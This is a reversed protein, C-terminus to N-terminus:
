VNFTSGGIFERLISNSPVNDSPIGLFYDLFKLLRKAEPYEKSDKQVSFLVPEVYQKIVAIEYNLASNFTADASSQYPFIYKEEGRRVSDWMSITKTPSTGRKRVDRIMRRLLRGDTTPIRNHEDINLQTLASIYIKYRSDKPLRYSLEDNLCHIGEIVLIDDKGLKLFNGNYERQGIKFNFSPIEVEEGNLLALMDENFKEIDMAGLCEFDLEGHEDRPTDERNKFYNDVELPHPKLGHSRLQISLRHSFSTKGSSSPGAIMVLKVNGRKVIDDAIDGIKKEMYAESILIMENTMGNAIMENLSGVDAVGMDEANKSANNLENFIKEEPVFEEVVEPNNKKPIILVLGDKYKTLSFKNVFGTSYVIYGYNYDIYDELKYINVRSVRRFKFLKEKEFFGADHFMKIATDTHVSMKEIRINEDVIERMRGDIKDIDFESEGNMRIFLGNGTSFEVIPKINEGYIDKISKLLILVASREYTSRGIADSLTVFELKIDSKLTKHLEQLKSDVKVLLARKKHETVIDFYSTNEEYEFVENNINVKFKKMIKNKQDM